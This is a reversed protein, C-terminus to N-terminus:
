QIVGVMKLVQQLESKNKIEGFFINFYNWQEIPLKKASMKSQCGQTINVKNDDINLTLEYFCYEGDNIQFVLEDSYEKVLTFGFSKIDEKDLYKVRVRRLTNETQINVYKIIDIHSKNLYFTETSWLEKEPIYVEYEFGIRFEEINPVYYKNGM